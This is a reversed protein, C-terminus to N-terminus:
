VLHVVMLVALLVPEDGTEAQPRCCTGALHSPACGLAPLDVVFALDHDGRADRGHGALEGAAEARRQLQLTVDSVPMLQSRIEKGTDADARAHLRKHPRLGSWRREPFSGYATDHVANQLSALARLLCLIACRHRDLCHGRQSAPARARAQGLWSPQLGGGQATGVSKQLIDHM